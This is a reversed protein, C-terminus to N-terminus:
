EEIGLADLLGQSPESAAAKKVGNAVMYGEACATFEWLSMRDVQRPDFGLM